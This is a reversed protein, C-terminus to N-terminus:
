VITVKKGGDSVFARSYFETLGKVAQNFDEICATETASHMALQALGIDVSRISVQSSSIAGLTGGCPLNSRMHFDQYKVNAGDFIGKILSSSFGDTTYNQNAHHKIVIGKGMVVKNTPDSLEPHNPHLAHANDDSVIFSNALAVSLERGGGILRNVNNLVDFLFTSGAGQKTASGVEENDAIYCVDIAKPTSNILALLSSYASTLNDIRPSCILEDSYGATFPKVASVVFLDADAIKKDGAFNKLEGCLGDCDIASVLPSMDTQPDLKIGDNAARNFHIAVSPIVFTKASTFTKAEYSTGDTLIVRGAITLPIDLFSYNLGGGYREVNLKVYSEVKMEPNSKIKFCPSDAHSAVINFSLKEGVRFAILASGDKSVFYKGGKEISWTKNEKLECFGNEELLAVANDHAHYATKSKDLFEFLSKLSQNEM